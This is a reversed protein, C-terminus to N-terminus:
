FSAILANYVDEAWRDAYTKMYIFGRSDNIAANMPAGASEVQITSAPVPDRRITQFSWLVKHTRHDVLMVSIDMVLVYDQTIVKNPPLGLGSPDGSTSWSGGDMQASHIRGVFEADPHESEDVIDVSSRLQLIRRLADTVVAGAREQSTDNAFLPISVRKVKGPLPQLASRVKYGACSVFGQACIFIIALQALTRNHLM